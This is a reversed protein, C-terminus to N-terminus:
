VDSSNVKNYEEETIQDILIAGCEVSLLRRVFFGSKFLKGNPRRLSGKYYTKTPMFKPEHYGQITFTKEYELTWGNVLLAFKDEKCNSM